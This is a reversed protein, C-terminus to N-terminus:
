AVTNTLTVLSMRMARSSIKQGTKDDQRIARLFFGDVDGVVGDVAQVAVDAAGVQFRAL